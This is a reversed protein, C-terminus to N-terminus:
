FKGRAELFGFQINDLYSYSIKKTTDNEQYHHAKRSIKWADTPSHVVRMPRLDCHMYPIERIENARLQLKYPFNSHQNAISFFLAILFHKDDMIARYSSVNSSEKNAKLFFTVSGNKELDQSYGVDIYKNFLTLM